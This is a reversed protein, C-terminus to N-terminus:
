TFIFIFFFFVEISKNNFIQTNGSPPISDETDTQMSSSEGDSHGTSDLLLPRQHEFPPRYGMSSNGSSSGSFTDTCLRPGGSPVVSTM